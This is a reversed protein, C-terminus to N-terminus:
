LAADVRRLAEDRPLAALVRWLEPGREAGTLAIRLTRLDGGAARLETLLDRAENATLGTDSRSRLARFQELTARSGNQASPAAPADAVAAILGRAEELDRAGAALVAYSPNVGLREALEADSLGGIAETALRRLRARDFHVNGRPIGLEDLYARVAEPPIGQARLDALSGGAFRKGLKGGGPALLLGHHMFEPPSAGLARAIREHLPQNPRHDQGRIVHTIGFDADDLVSALHYTAAGDPRLLTTRREDRLRVSGDDEFAAGAELLEAAAGAYRAARGSQRVPGEDFPLGLWALDSVIAAEGGAVNRAADTDDIRLLLRGGHQDAFRRNALATLANGIQLSGTPSPAFRVRVM